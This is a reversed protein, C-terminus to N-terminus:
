SMFQRAYYFQKIKFHNNLLNYKVHNKILQYHLHM